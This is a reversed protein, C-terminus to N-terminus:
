LAEYARSSLLPVWSGRGSLGPCGRRRRCISACQLSSCCPFLPPITSYGPHRWTRAPSLLLAAGLAQRRPSVGPSVGSGKTQALSRCLLPPLSCMLYAKARSLLLGPLIYRCHSGEYSRYEITASAGIKSNSCAKHNLAALPLTIVRASVRIGRFAALM